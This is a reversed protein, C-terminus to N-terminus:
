VNKKNILNVVKVITFCQATHANIACVVQEKLRLKAFVHYIYMIGNRCKRFLKELADYLTSMRFKRIIESIMIENRNEM